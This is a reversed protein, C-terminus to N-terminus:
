KVILMFGLGVDKGGVFPDAGESTRFPTPDMQSVDYMGYVNDSLRRCPVYDRLVETDGGVLKGTFRIFFCRGFGPHSKGNCNFLFINANRTQAPTTAVVDFKKTGNLTFVGNTMAASIHAPTALKKHEIGREFFDIGGTASAHSVLAFSWEAAGFLHGNDTGFNEFECEMEYAQTDRIGTDFYQTGNAEIYKVQRYGRPVRELHRRGIFADAGESVRFPGKPDNGTVDYMGYVDDSVRRCPVYERLLVGNEGYLKVGYCRGKAAGNKAFNNFLYLARGKFGTTDCPVTTDINAKAAGNITYVGNTLAVVFHAPCSVATQEKGSLFLRLTTNDTKTILGFFWEAAGILNGNNAGFNYFEGEFGYLSGGTLGTDFYQTGTGEVYDAPLYGEPLPAVLEGSTMVAASASTKATLAGFTTAVTLATVAASPINMVSEKEKLTKEQVEEQVEEQEQQIQSGGSSLWDAVPAFVGAQWAAFSGLTLCLVAIVALPKKVKGMEAKLKGALLQHAIQVRRSVTGLPLNLIRAIEKLSFDEYYRMLMAQKYKPDLQEVARRIAESDSNKLIQEDTSWDAGVYKELEEDEVVRTGRVVAHRMDDARLNLMLTKLWGFVNEVEANEDLKQIGKALARSVLDEADAENGCERLAISHLRDRCEIIFQLAGQTLDKRIASLVGM